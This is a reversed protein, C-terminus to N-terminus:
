CGTGAYPRPVMRAVWAVWRATWCARRLEPELDQIKSALTALGMWRALIPSQSSFTSAERRGAGATRGCGGRHGSGFHLGDARLDIDGPVDGLTLFGPEGRVGRASIVGKTRAASLQELGGGKSVTLASSGGWCRLGQRAVSIVPAMLRSVTSSVLRRRSMNAWDLMDKAVVMLSM